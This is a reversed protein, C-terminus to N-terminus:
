AAPGASAPEAVAAAAATATAESVPRPEGLKVLVVGALIGAGGLLQVPAPAQGLLVWAVALAAVVELLAVFSALRSGLRRSGAIGFMYALSTSELGVLALPVWWPVDLSRFSVTSAGTSMELLGATGCAALVVAGVAMGSGALAVAPLASPRASLVFYVACGAMAALGWAIGPISADAGSFLDLVLVLGAIAVAAGLATVRTPRQGHRLWLWALVAVPAVYEVLLAVAVDMHAVASFYAFQTFAVGVAGYAVVLRAEERLIGWRGRLARLTPVLLVLTAVLVRGLVVTAPSWGAQLLPSALTGSFGFTVAALFSLGLGWRM